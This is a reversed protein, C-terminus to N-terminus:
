MQFVVVRGDMLKYYSENNEAIDEGLREFDFYEKAEESVTMCGSDVWEEGLEYVNDFIHSIIYRDQYQCGANLYEEFLEDVEEMDINYKQSCFEKEEEVISNFLKENEKSQLKKYICDLEKLIELGKEYEDKREPSDLGYGLDRLEKQKKLLFEFEERTLISQMNDFDIKELNLEDTYYPSSIGGGGFYHGCEFSMPTIYNIIYTDMDERKSKTKFLFWEKM